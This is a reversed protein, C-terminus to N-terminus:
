LESKGLSEMLNLHKKTKRHKTLNHKFSVCGCECTIKERNKESIKEKNKEYWEKKKEIFYEKNKEYYEKKNENIVEKNREVYEKMKESIVEKNREYYEKHIQSIKEKNREAYEKQQQNIAEKNKVRYEKKEEETRFCKKENMNANLKVRFEEEVMEAQRKTIGEECENIIVMRWNQWGSNERIIQYLKHNYNKSNINNCISKHQYKRNVFNTTSGVYIYEPVGDCVIKYIVYRMKDLIM